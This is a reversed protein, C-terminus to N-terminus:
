TVSDAITAANRTVLESIRREWLKLADRKEEVYGHRDYRQGQVGGLGHSLLQARTDRDVGFRALLTEATRRLDALRFLEHSQGAAVMTRAIEAVVQSSSEVSVAHTGRASFLFDSGRARAETVLDEISEKIQGTLPLVHERSQTRRGKPDRLTLTADGPNYDAITARALQTPRQGGLMFACRVLEAAASDNSSLQGWFVRLEEDNLFRHREKIKPAKIAVAPNSKIKFAILAAPATADSEAQIALAFAACLYSRVKGAARSKDAQTLGRLVSALDSTTISDAPRAALKPHAVLINRNLDRRVARASHAGRKDLHDCYIELLRKLTRESSEAKHLAAERKSRAEEVPDRGQAIEGIKTEALRRAMEPTVPGFRGIGIRRERGDIRRQIVFTKVGKATVRVGFGALESDWVISQGQTPPVIAAVATKTLKIKNAM